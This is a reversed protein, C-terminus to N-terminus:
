AREPRSCRGSQASCARRGGIKMAYDWHTNTGIITSIPHTNTVCKHSIVRSSAHGQHNRTQVPDRCCLNPKDVQLAYNWVFCTFYTTNQYNIRNRATTVHTTITPKYKHVCMHIPDPSMLICIIETIPEYFDRSLRSALSFCYSLRRFYACVYVLNPFNCDCLKYHATQNTSQMCDSQLPLNYFPHSDCHDGTVIQHKFHYIV